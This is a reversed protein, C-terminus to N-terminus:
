FLREQVGGSQQGLLGAGSPCFAPWQDTPFLVNVKYVANLNGAGLFPYTIGGWTVSLGNENCQTGTASQEVCSPHTDLGSLRTICQATTGGQPYQFGFYADSANAGAENAAAYAYTACEKLTKKGNPIMTGCTAANVDKYCGVYEVPHTVLCPANAATGKYTGVICPLLTYTQPKQTHTLLGAIASV